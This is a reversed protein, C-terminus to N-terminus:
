WQQHQFATPHGTGIAGTEKLFYCLLFKTKKEGEDLFAISAV